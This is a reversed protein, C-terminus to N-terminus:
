TSGPLKFSDVKRVKVRVSTEIGWTVPDVHQLDLELLQDFNTGKDKAIPLGKAWHGSCAAIGMTQPHQGEMLKLQGRVKRGSVSEVEIIDGDKLGRTRAADTNMTITYTYPNMRSAEDLWPQEMTSSGTHLTDRYSFCYLDYEQNDTHVWCPTWSIFPTFQTFDYDMGLEKMIKEAKERMEVMYELYIPVRADIFHRWYSEEVKKPWSIFGHKKFWEWDHESGFRQKLVRDALQEETLRDDPKLEYEGTLGHQKNLLKNLEARMGLRDLIEWAVDVSSRREGGAPVVPQAIHVAWPDMGFPQSMSPVFTDFAPNELYCVDPLVIDAFGEALETSFLEFVVSFPISKLMKEIIEGNAISMPANLGWAIMMDYQHLIGAQSLIEERDSGGYVPTAAHIPFIDRLARQREHKINPTRVPWPGEGGSFHPALLFGDIGKMNGTAFAGTGPYGLGRGTGLGLTGGPVDAAGVLQNLLAIAFCTHHANQHGQGGRFIVASVPRFPLTHGEITITSGIQAAEAFEVAIRRITAAPVTSVRSAMEPTYQKLHERVLHFAPQCKIGRVEYAGEIAYDKITPDDYVKAKGEGSDWVLPKNTDDDGIYTVDGHRVGRAPGKERVYRGDPGILYPANTKLKLYTADYKSLENVIVNCMALVIAADTGPILPVWETAKGAAFNCMPDFAVFKAGRARAEAGLRATKGASHGAGTGKSAGFYIIYNSYKFDPVVSWAAFVMGSVPHAGRGCHLGAGGPWTSHANLLSQLFGNGRTWGSLLVSSPWLIKAPDDAVVKKLRETIEDLAEEWTIEKWGPDVYLGKEPNTRRLPVNLRNPDYLVQLGAAGRACVGGESGQKSDPNGEIKVAVGNVRHVRLACSAYCRGCRTPIWVDEYIETNEAM